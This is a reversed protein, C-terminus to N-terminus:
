KQGKFFHYFLIFISEFAVSHSIATYNCGVLPLAAEHNEDLVCKFFFTTSDSNKKRAGSPIKKKIRSLNESKSHKM